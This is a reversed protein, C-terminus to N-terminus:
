PEGTAVAFGLSLLMRALAVCPATPAGLEAAVERLTRAGDLALVLAAAASDLGATYLLGDELRLTAEAPALSGEDEAPRFTQELMAAPALAIRSGLLAEDGDLGALLDQGALIRELQETAPEPRRPLPLASAWTRGQERRRLVVAGYAVSEIGEAEFYAVWRDLLAGYREAHPSADRNWLAASSLPDETGSHFLLADCGRDGLWDLPRPLRDGDDEVGSAM